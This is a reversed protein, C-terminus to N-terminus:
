AAKEQGSQLEAIAQRLHIRAAFLQRNVQAEPVRLLGAIAASTYGEVDRLLFLLRESAPLEQIAEELETRKVNRGSLNYGNASSAAPATDTHLPFRQQLQEILAADVDQANPEESARFATVFTNALIQEAELENGTMYYAVSFARHRHSEYIDRQRAQLSQKERRLAVVRASARAFQNDSNFDFM